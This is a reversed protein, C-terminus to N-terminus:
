GKTNLKKKRAANIATKSQMVERMSRKKPPQNKLNCVKILTM